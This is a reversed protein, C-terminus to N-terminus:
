ADLVRRLGPGAADGGLESLAVGDRDLWRTPLYVRDLRLYDAKCDQVHNLVQHANCLADSMRWLSRDEGHLDLLFRGVPAASYRCYLLLDSWSRYRSQRADKMFAQLLHRCHQVPVRTRELVPRVAEAAAVAPHDAHRGPREGCLASDVASLIALKT